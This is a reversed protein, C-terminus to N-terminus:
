FPKGYERMKEHREKKKSGYYKANVFFSEPWLEM